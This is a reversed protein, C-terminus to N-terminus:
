LGLLSGFFEAIADLIGPEESPAAADAFIDYRDPLEYRSVSDGGVVFMVAGEDAFALGSARQGETDLSGMYGRLAPDYPGGLEYGHVETEESVFLLLGDDSFEIEWIVDSHEGLDYSGDHVPNTIDYPASLSYRQISDDGSILMETGGPVFVIGGSETIGEKLEFSGSHIPGTIDYPAYLDYQEISISEGPNGNRSVFLVTGDDSTAMGYASGGDKLEASGAYVPSSTDHPSHLDYRHVADPGTSVTLMIMGDSSFAEDTIEASQGLPGQPAEIQASTIDYEGSLAYRSMSSEGAVFLETGGDSFALGSAPQEGTDFSGAYEMNDLDYPGGLEYSHVGTEESAFMSTGDDSFEIEWIFETQNLGYSTDHIPDSIDYPASLEYRLVSNDSSVFMVTGGQAFVIGGTEPAHLEFLGAHVPASIDFPSSLDYRHISAPGARISQDTAAMMGEMGNRVVFLAAGDGSFAMGVASGGEELRFSDSYEPYATDFPSSLTYHYIADPDTVSTFADLGDDSFVMDSVYAFPGLVTREPNAYAPTAIALAAAISLALICGTSPTKM